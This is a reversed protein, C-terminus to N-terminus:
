SVILYVTRMGLQVMFVLELVILPLYPMWDERGARRWLLAAVALNIACVLPAFLILRHTVSGHVFPLAHAALVAAAGVGLLKWGPALGLHRRVGALIGFHGAVYFANGFGPILFHSAHLEIAFVGLVSSAAFFLGALGWDILCVQRASAAYLLGMSGAMITGALASAVVLTFADM